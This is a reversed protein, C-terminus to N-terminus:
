TSKSYTPKKLMSEYVALQGEWGAQGESAELQPLIRIRPALGTFGYDHAWPAVELPNIEHSFGM